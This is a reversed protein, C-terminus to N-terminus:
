HHARRRVSLAGVIALAALAGSAPEAVWVAPAPLVPPPAFIPPPATGLLVRKSAFAAKLGREGFNFLDGRTNALLVINALLNSSAASGPSTGVPSVQGMLTRIVGPSGIGDVYETPQIEAIGYTGAALGTFTYQGTNNTQLVSIPMRPVPDALNFLQVTVGPLVLEPNPQDNFTLVGDNNRDIYVFGSLQSAGPAATSALLVGAVALARACVPACRKWCSSASM